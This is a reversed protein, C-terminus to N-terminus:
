FLLIRTDHLLLLALRVYLPHIGADINVAKQLGLRPFRFKNTYFLAKQLGLRPFRFKNTYFLVM